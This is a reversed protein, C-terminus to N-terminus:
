MHAVADCAGYDALLAGHLAVTAVTNGLQPELQSKLKSQKAAPLAM